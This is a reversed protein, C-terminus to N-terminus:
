GPALDLADAPRLLLAPLQLSCALLQTLTLGDGMTAMLVESVLPQEAPDQGSFLIVPSEGAIGSADIRALVEWGSMGPMVVDLLVLDFAEQRLTDLAQDGGSATAVEIEGDIVQLVRTFLRLVHPDDDVVLVRKVPRPLAGMAQELQTRTVPKILYGAAGAELARQLQPPVSCGIVPTNPLGLRAQRVLPLLGDPQALNILIAGVPFSETECAAQALDQVAAFEVADYLRALLSCLDGTEDVVIVRPKPPQDALGAGDTRFARESWVWDTRIWRDPRALHEVPPSIPLEFFFTAGRGPESELWIRGGHRQVFEKSISLGLGSGSTDRWLRTSGQSFPEFVREADAPSIGPGTDSVSVRVHGNRRVVRVEIAGQETFRAANSTLNLIVQRIRTRDCYVEPLDSPIAVSLGVGKKEVLPRVVVLASDVIEALDVRERYLTFRGAEAQSLDLVDNVLSALHQCNRHVIELDERMEPLLEEAYVSPARVMLSVLGIIMNLPTRFEHSVKAVFSAKTKQADEAILRLAALRENSLAVQRTAHALDGMAQELEARRDRAEELLDQARQFYASMWDSLRFLPRYVAYVVVLTGWVAMLAVGTMVPDGALGPLLLVLATEALAVAAAAPLSIVAAALGTSLNLLTLLQPAGLSGSAVFIVAAVALVTVWRGVVPVLSYLLWAVGCLVYALASLALLAWRAAPQTQAEGLFVLLFGAAGLLGILPAPSLRLEPDFAGVSQRPSVM